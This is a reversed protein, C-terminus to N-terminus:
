NRKKNPDEGVDSGTSGVRSFLWPYNSNNNVKIMTASEEMCRHSKLSSSKLSSRKQAKDLIIKSLNQAKTTLEDM